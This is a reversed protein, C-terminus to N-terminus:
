RRSTALVLESVLVFRRLAQGSWWPWNGIIEAVKARTLHHAHVDFLVDYTRSAADVCAMNEGGHCYLGSALVNDHNWADRHTWWAFMMREPERIEGCFVCARLARANDRYKGDRRLVDDWWEGSSEFSM